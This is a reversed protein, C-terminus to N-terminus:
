GLGTRKLFLRLRGREGVVATYDDDTAHGAFPDDHIRFGPFDVRGVDVAVFGYLYQDLGRTNRYLGRFSRRITPHSNITFRHLFVYGTRTVQRQIM